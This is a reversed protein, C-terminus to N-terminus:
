TLAYLLKTFEKAIAERQTYISIAALGALVALYVAGMTIMGVPIGMVSKECAMKVVELTIALGFVGWEVLNLAKRIAYKTRKWAPLYQMKIYTWSM